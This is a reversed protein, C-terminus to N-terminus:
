PYENVGKNTDILYSNIKFVNLLEINVYLSSKFKIYSLHYQQILNLCFHNNCFTHIIFM